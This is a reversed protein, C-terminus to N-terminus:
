PYHLHLKQVRKGDQQGDRELEERGNPNHLVPEELAAPLLVDDDLPLLVDEPEAGDREAGPEAVETGGIEVLEDREDTAECPVNRGEWRAVHGPSASQSPMATDRQAVDVRSHQMVLGTRPGPPLLSYVNGEHNEAGDCRRVGSDLRDLHTRRGALQHSSHTLVSADPLKHHLGSRSLRGSEPLADVQRLATDDSTERKM